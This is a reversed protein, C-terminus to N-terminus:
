NNITGKLRTLEEGQKNLKAVIERAFVALNGNLADVSASVSDMGGAIQNAGAEFKSATQEMQGGAAAIAAAAKDTGGAAQWKESFTEASAMAERSGANKVAADVGSSAAATMDNIGDGKTSPINRPFGKSAAAVSDDAGSAVRARRDDMTELPAPAAPPVVPKVPRGFDDYAGGDIGAGIGRTNQDAPATTTAPGFHGKARRDLEKLQARVRGALQAREDQNLPRKEDSSMMKNDQDRILDNIQETRLIERERQSLRQGKEDREPTQKLGQLADLLDNERRQQALAQERLAVQKALEGTRQSEEIAKDRPTDIDLLRKLDERAAKQGALVALRQQDGSLQSQLKALEDDHAALTAEANDRENEAHKVAEEMAASMADAQRDAARAAHDQEDRMAQIRTEVRDAEAALSQYTAYASKGGVTMQEQANAAEYLQSALNRTTEFSNGAPTSRMDWMLRDREELLANMEQYPGLQAAASVANQDWQQRRTYLGSLAAAYAEARAKLAEWQVSGREVKGMEINIGALRSQITQIAQGSGTTVSDLKEFGEIEEVVAAMTAKAEDAEKTLRKLSDRYEDTADASTRFQRSLGFFDAMSNSLRAFLENIGEGIGKEIWPKKSQALRGRVEGLKEEMQVYLQAARTADTVGTATTRWQKGLKDTETRSRNIEETWSRQQQFVQQSILLITGAVGAIRGLLAATAPDVGAQKLKEGLPGSGGPGGPTSARERAAMAARREAAERERAAQRYDNATQRAQQAAEREARVRQREATTASQAAAEQDRKVAVILKEADYRRYAMEVAEEETAYPNEKQIRVAERRIQLERQLEAIKDLEEAAEAEVLELSTEQIIQTQSRLSQIREEAAIKAALAAAEEKEAKLRAANTAEIQRLSEESVPPPEPGEDRTPRIPDFKYGPGRTSPRPGSNDVVQSPARNAGRAITANVQALKAELDAADRGAAREAEALGRLEDAYAQLQGRAADQRIGKLQEQLRALEQAAPGASVGLEREAAALERHKAIAQELASLEAKARIEIDYQANGDAM